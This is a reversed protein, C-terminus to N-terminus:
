RTHGDPGGKITEDNVKIHTRVRWPDPKDPQKQFALPVEGKLKGDIPVYRVAGEIIGPGPPIPEQKIVAEGETKRYGCRALHYSLLPILFHVDMVNGGEDVPYTMDNALDYMAGIMRKALANREEQSKNQAYINARMQEVAKQAETKEVM